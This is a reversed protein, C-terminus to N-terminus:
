ETRPRDLSEIRQLMRGVSTRHWQAGLPTPIKRQNLARAIAEVSFGGKRLKLITPALSEARTNAARSLALGNNGQGSKILGLRILVRAISTRHWRGGGAAPIGRRNLEDMLERQSVFGAAKLEGVTQALASARGHAALQNATAGSRQPKRPSIGDSTQKM